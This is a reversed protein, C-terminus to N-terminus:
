KLRKIKEDIIKINMQNELYEIKSKSIKMEFTSNNTKKDHVLNVKIAHMQYDLIYEIIYEVEEDNWNPNNLKTESYKKLIENVQNNNLLIREEVQM